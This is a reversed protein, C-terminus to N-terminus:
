GDGYSQLVHLLTRCLLEQAQPRTTDGTIWRLCAIRNLGTWCELAFRLQPTDRALDRYTEILRTLTAQRGREILTAGEADTISEGRGVTALWITRNEDVWDLYASVSHQVRQEPTGAPPERLVTPATRSLQEVLALYIARKGGFYHHVLGRTVSAEHAIDEVTVVITIALLTAPGTRAAVSQHRDAVRLRARREDESEHLVAVPDLQEVDCQQM